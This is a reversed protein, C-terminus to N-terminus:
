SSFFYILRGYCVKSRGIHTVMDTPKRYLFVFGRALPAKFNM